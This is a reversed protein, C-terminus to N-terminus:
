NFHGLWIALFALIILGVTSFYSITLKEFLELRDGINGDNFARLLRLAYVCFGVFPVYQVNIWSLLTKM